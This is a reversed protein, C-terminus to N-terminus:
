DIRTAERLENNLFSLRTNVVLFVQITICFVIWYVSNSGGQIFIGLVFFLFMAALNIWILFNCRAIKGRLQEIYGSNMLKKFVEGHARGSHFQAIRVGFDKLFESEIDKWTFISPRFKLKEGSELIFVLTDPGRYGNIYKWRLM